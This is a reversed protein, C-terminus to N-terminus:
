LPKQEKLLKELEELSTLQQKLANKSATFSKLKVKDRDFLSLANTASQTGRIKQKCFKNVVHIYDGLPNIPEALFEQSIAELEASKAKHLQERMRRKRAQREKETQEQQAWRTKQASNDSYTYSSSSSDESVADYIKKGAWIAVPAALWWM